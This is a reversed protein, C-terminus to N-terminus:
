KIHTKQKSVETIHQQLDSPKLTKPDEIPDRYIDYMKFRSIADPSINNSDKIHVFTIDYDALKKAWWDPNPIIKM